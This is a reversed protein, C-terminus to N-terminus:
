VESLRKIQAITLEVNPIKALKTTMTEITDTPDLSLNYKKILIANIQKIGQLYKNYNDVIDKAFVKTDNTTKVEQVPTPIAKSITTTEPADFQLDNGEYLKLALGTGRSAVKAKARQVAKNVDNSDVFKPAQYSKDQIPYDEIFVKDLFTLKVRVFNVVRANESNVTDVTDKGEKRSFSAISINDSFLPTGNPSIVVEFTAFPDQQYTLREMTAWGIYSNGKYNKQLEKELAKAEPSIGHYNDLFQLLWKNEMQQEEKEKEEFYIDARTGM